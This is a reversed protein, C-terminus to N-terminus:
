GLQYLKAPSSNLIQNLIAPVDNEHIYDDEILTALCRSIGRRLVQLNAYTWEVNGAHSQCAALKIAPVTQLRLSLERAIVDTVFGGSGFGAVAINPSRAAIECFRGSMESVGPMIVFQASPFNAYFKAIAAPCTTPQFPSHGTTPIQVTKHNDHHWALMAWAVAHIVIETEENTLAIDGSARDLLQNVADEDPARFTFKMPLRVSTFRAKDSYAGALWANVRKMLHSHDRCTGGLQKALSEIYSEDAGRKKGHSQQKALLRTADLYYHPRIGLGADAADAHSLPMALADIHAREALVEGAWEPQSSREAVTKALTQWDSENISKETFDFLDNLIRFFRWGTSTNRVKQLYPLASKVQEDPHKDPGMANEPMGVSKMEVLLQPHALLGALSGASAMGPRILSYTDIIKSEDFRRAIREVLRPPDTFM